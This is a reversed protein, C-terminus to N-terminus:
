QIIILFSCNIISFQNLRVKELKNLKLFNEGNTIIFKFWIEKSPTIEAFLMLTTAIIM